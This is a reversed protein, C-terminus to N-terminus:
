SFLKSPAPATLSKKRSNIAKIEAKKSWTSIAWKKEGMGGKEENGGAVGGEFKQDLLSLGLMISQSHCIIKWTRYIRVWLEAILLGKEAQM